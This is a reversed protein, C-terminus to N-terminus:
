EDLALSSTETSEQMRRSIDERSLEPFVDKGAGAMLEALTVKQGLSEHMSFSETKVGSKNENQVRANRKKIIREQRQTIAKERSEMLLSKRTYFIYCGNIVALGDIFSVNPIYARSPDRPKNTVMSDDVYQYVLHGKVNAARIERLTATQTQYVMQSASNDPVQVPIYAFEEPLGLSKASFPNNPLAPNEVRVDGISINTAPLAERMRDLTSQQPTVINSM